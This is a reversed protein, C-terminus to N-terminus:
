HVMNYNLNYMIWLSGVIVVSTVFVAFFLSWLGWRVSENRASMRFFCVVQVILQVIVLATLCIYLMETSSLHYYVISFAALTLIVSLVFGIVYSKIVGISADTIVLENHNSM